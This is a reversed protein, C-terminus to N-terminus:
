REEHAIYGHVWEDDDDDDDDDDDAQMMVDYAHVHTNQHADAQGQHGSQLHSVSAALASYDANKFSSIVEPALVARCECSTHCTLRM